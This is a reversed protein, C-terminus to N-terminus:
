DGRLRRSQWTLSSMYLISKTTWILCGDRYRCTQVLTCLVIGKQLGHFNKCCAMCFSSVQLAQQKAAEQCDLLTKSLSCLENKLQCNDDQHKVVAEECQQRMHREQSLLVTLKSVEGQLQEEEHGAARVQQITGRLSDLLKMREQKELEVSERTSALQAQLDETVQLITTFSQTRTRRQQIGFAVCYGCHTQRCPHHQVYDNIISYMITFTNLLMRM